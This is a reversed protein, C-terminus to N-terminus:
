EHIPIHIPNSILKILIIGNIILLFILEDESDDILYKIVWARAEDRRMIDIINISVLINLVVDVIIIFEAIMVFIPVAGNWKQNGSIISPIFQDLQIIRNVQCFTAGIIM